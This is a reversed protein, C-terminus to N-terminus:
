THCRPSLPSRLASLPYRLAALASLPSRRPSLLSCRPSLPACLASLLPSSLCCLSCLPVLLPCGACRIFVFDTRSIGTVASTILAMQQGPPANHRLELHNPGDHQITGDRFFVTFLVASLVSLVTETHLQSAAATCPPASHTPCTRASRRARVSVARVSVARVHAPRSPCPRAGSSSRM